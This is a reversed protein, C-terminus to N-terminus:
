IRSSRFIIVLFIISGFVSIILSIPVEYPFIILRSLIDSAVLFTSGILASLPIAKKLNDGVALTVLNGIILGIFPISGVTIVSSASILSICALGLTLVAKYNVGLNIAFSEGLGTINFVGKFIFILVLAIIILYLLQNNQNTILTFSGQLWAGVSQILDFQYALYTTIASIVQGFVMGILPVMIENKVKLRNILQLLALTGLLSVSFAFILKMMSENPGFWLMSLLIGLRAFDMMGMTTPSIFRNHYLTQMLLGGVSLGAGVLIVSIVRPLRSVEFILRAQADGAIFDSFSWAHAGIFISAISLGILLILWFGTNITIQNLKKM